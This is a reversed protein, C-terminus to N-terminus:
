SDARITWSPPAPLPSTVSVCTDDHVSAVLEGTEDRILPGTCTCRDQSQESRYSECWPGGECVAYGDECDYGDSECYVRCGPRLPLPAATLTCTVEGTPCCCPDDPDHECEAHDWTILHTM